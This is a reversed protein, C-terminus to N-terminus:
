SSHFINKAPNARGTLSRVKNEEARTNSKPILALSKSSSVIENAKYTTHSVSSKRKSPLKAESQTNRMSQIRITSTFSPRKKGPWSEEKFKIIENRSRKALLQLLKSNSEAKPNIKNM